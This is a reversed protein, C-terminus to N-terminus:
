LLDHTIRGVAGNTIAGDGSRQRTGAGMATVNVVLLRGVGRGTICVFQHTHKKYFALHRPALYYRYNLFFTGPGALPRIRMGPVVRNKPM